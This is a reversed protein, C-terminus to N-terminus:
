DASPAEQISELYTLLVDSGLPGFVFHPMDPHGMKLGTEFNAKLLDADAVLLVRRLPMADPRLAEADDLGHCNACQHSAIDRGEAIQQSLPADGAVRRPETQLCATSACALITALLIRM